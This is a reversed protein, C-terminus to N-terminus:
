ACVKNIAQLLKPPNFPKVIWDTAGAREGDAKRKESTETTLIIVPTNKHAGDRRVAHVLTIGDMVPMNLDMTIVDPRLKKTRAIAQIGDEAFGIVEMEPDAALIGQLADRSTPSDDVILVRPM